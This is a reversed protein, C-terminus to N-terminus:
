LLSRGASHEPTTSQQRRTALDSVLMALNHLLRFCLGIRGNFRLCEIISLLHSESDHLLSSV